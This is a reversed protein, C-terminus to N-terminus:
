QKKLSFKAKLQYETEININDKFNTSILKDDAYWGDFKYGKNPIAKVSVVAGCVYLIDGSVDGGAEPVSIITNSYAIFVAKM